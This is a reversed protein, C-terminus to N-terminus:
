LIAMELGKIVHGHGLIIGFPKDHGNKDYSSSLETDDELRSVYHYSVVSGKKIIEGEGEEYTDITL